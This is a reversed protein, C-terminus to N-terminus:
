KGRVFRSVVDDLPLPKVDFDGDKKITLITGGRQTYRKQIGGYSHFDLSMGYSLQIDKYTLSVTNLHDHGCFMAKISGEKVAREFFNCENKSIGFYDNLEAISGFKYKVSRDGLKMQEYAHKFDALPMHFFAHAKLGDNYTKLLELEKMAWDIQDEHICDFGSFFWGDGYMNSDLMVLSSVPKDEDGRLNIIFNGVGTLEKDGESFISYKGEKILAALDERSARSGMEIDHNGFVMTYPLEFSDMFATLKKMQRGNNLTGAKPLFPYIMDGTLIILDPSSKEILLRIADMVQRDAKKSLPGFGLHMDTLQLIRFQDKASFSLNFHGNSDTKLQNYM